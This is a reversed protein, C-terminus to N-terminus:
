LGNFVIDSVTESLCRNLPTHTQVAALTHVYPCPILPTRGTVCVSRIYLANYASGPPM